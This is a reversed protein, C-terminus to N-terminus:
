TILFIIRLFIATIVVIFFWNVIDIIRKLMRNPFFIRNYIYINTFIFLHLLFPLIFIFWYDVLQDEGWSRSYLLPIQPPLKNFRLAFSVAMLLDSFLLAYIMGINYGLIAM